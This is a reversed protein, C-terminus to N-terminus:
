QLGCLKDAATLTANYSIRKIFNNRILYVRSIFMISYEGENNFHKDELIGYTTILSVSVLIITM